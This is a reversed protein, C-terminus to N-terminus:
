NSNNEKSFTQFQPNGFLLQEVEKMEDSKQDMEAQKKMLRSNIHELEEIRAKLSLIEIQQVQLQEDKQVLQTIFQDAKSEEKKTRSLVEFLKSYVVASERADQTNNFVFKMRMSKNDFPSPNKLDGDRLRKANHSTTMIECVFQFSENV